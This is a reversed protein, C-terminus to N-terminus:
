RWASAGLDLNCYDFVDTLIWGLCVPRGDRSEGVASKELFLGIGMINASCKGIRPLCRCAKHVFDEDLNAFDEKLTPKRYVNLPEM